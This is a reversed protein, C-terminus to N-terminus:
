VFSWVGISVDCLPNGYNLLRIPNVIPVVLGSVISVNDDSKQVMCRIFITRDSGVIDDDCERSYVACCMM